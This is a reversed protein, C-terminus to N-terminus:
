ARTHGACVTIPSAQKCALRLARRADCSDLASAPYFRPLALSQQFIPWGTWCKCAWWNTYLMANDRQAGLKHSPIQAHLHLVFQPLLAHVTNLGDERCGQLKPKQCFSRGFGPAPSRAM